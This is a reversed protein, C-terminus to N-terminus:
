EVSMYDAWSALWDLEYRELERPLRVDGCPRLQPSAECSYAHAYAWAVLGCGTQMFPSSAGCAQCQLLNRAEDCVFDFRLM